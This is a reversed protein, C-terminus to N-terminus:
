SAEQDLLDFLTPASLQREEAQCYSVADAWYGPNLEIGVGTDAAVGNGSSSKRCPMAAPRGPQDAKDWPHASMATVCSSGCRRRLGPGGLRAVVAEM